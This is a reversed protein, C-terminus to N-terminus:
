KARTLMGDVPSRLFTQWNNRYNLWEMHGSLSKTFTIYADANCSARTCCQWLELFNNSYAIFNILTWADKRLCYLLQCSRMKYWSMQWRDNIPSGNAVRDNGQSQGHRKRQSTDLGHREDDETHRSRSIHLQERHSGRDDKKSSRKAAEYSRERRSGHLQM